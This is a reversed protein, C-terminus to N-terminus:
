LGRQKDYEPHGDAILCSNGRVQRLMRKMFEIFLPKQSKDEFAM